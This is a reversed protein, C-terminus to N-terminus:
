NKILHRILLEIHELQKINETYRVSIDKKIKEIEQLLTQLALKGDKDLPNFLRNYPQRGRNSFHPPEEGKYIAEISKILQKKTKQTPAKVGVERGLTRLHSLSFGELGM